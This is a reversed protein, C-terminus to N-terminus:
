LCPQWINLILREWEAHSLPGSIVELTTTVLLLLFSVLHAHVDSHQITQLGYPNLRRQKHASASPRENAQICQVCRTLRASGPKFRVARTRWGDLFNFRSWVLNVRLCSSTVVTSRCSRRGKQSVCARSGASGSNCPTSASRGPFFFRWYKANHIGTQKKNNKKARERRYDERFDSDWRAM